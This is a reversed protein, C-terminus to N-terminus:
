HSAHCNRCVTHLGIYAGDGLGMEGFAAGGDPQGAVRFIELDPQGAAAVADDGVRDDQVVHGLFVALDGLDDPAVQVDGVLLHHHFDVPVGRGFQQVHGM